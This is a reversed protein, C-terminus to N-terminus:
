VEESFAVSAGDIGEHMLRKVQHTPHDTISFQHIKLGWEKTAVKRIDEIIKSELVNIHDKDRWNELSIGRARRSLITMTQTTLAEDYDDVKVYAKELNIISYAMNCSLLVSVGEGGNSKHGDSSPISVTPFDAVKKVVNDTHIRDLFPWHFYFGPELTKSKQYRNEHQPWAFIRGLITKHRGDGYRAIKWLKKLPSLRKYDEMNPMEGGKFENNYDPRKFPNWRNIGLKGLDYAVDWEQRRISEKEESNLKVRKEVPIGRKIYLGREYVDVITTFKCLSFLDRVEAVWGV